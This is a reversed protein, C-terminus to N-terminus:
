FDIIIKKPNYPLKDWADEMNRRPNSVFRIGDFIEDVSNEYHGFCWTDIIKREDAIVCQNILSNGLLNFRVSERSQTDHILQPLPVTNTIIVIKEVEAMDQLKSISATLYRADGYAMAYIQALENNNCQWEEKLLLECQDGDIYPDFDYTWWANCAIFAVKDAIVVNDQLFVVNGLRSIQQKLENYSDNLSSLHDRHDLSGDIYFVTKYQNGLHKLTEFLVNRDRSVNGAVVCYLSTPQGEWDFDYIINLDSILDFTIQM